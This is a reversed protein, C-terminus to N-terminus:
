LVRVSGRVDVLKRVEEETFKRSNEHCYFVRGVYKPAGELSILKNFSCSFYGGVYEPAGQLTKLYNFDCSFDGEVRRPAGTLSILQNGSCHFDKGVYRPAGELNKLNNGWCKFSGGVYKPAGELTELQNHLCSFNREVEEPAGELDTLHNRSCKFDGQVRRIRVPVKSSTLKKLLATVELLSNLGLNYFDVDGLIDYVGDDIEFFTLSRLRSILETRVSRITHFDSLKKMKVREKKFIIVM